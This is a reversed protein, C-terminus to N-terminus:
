GGTGVAHQSNRMEGEADIGDVNLAGSEGDDRLGDFDTGSRGKFEGELELNNREGFGDRHVGGIGKKGGILRARDIHEPCLLNLSAEAGYGTARQLVEDVSLGAPEVFPAGNEM